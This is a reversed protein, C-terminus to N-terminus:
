IEMNQAEEWKEYLSALKKEWFLKEDFLAATREADSSIGQDLFMSEIESIKKETKEIEKEAKQIANQKKRARATEEKQKLWSDKGTESKLLQGDEKQVTEINRKDSKKELYYDYNGLYKELGFPTMEFITTATRNIFYRDHSIYLVTGEYSRLANELIEKSQMDLHNTPEDLVLLSAKSLMIKALSLRGREGGSLTSIEKFVDDGTFVFAALANRIEGSTMEPYSDSIESFITKGSNLIEQSQDYYGINVNTGLRYIGSDSKLEGLLIKILTTKGIGNPGIVAAREGRKIDLSVNEFLKKGDFSKSLNEAFLVDNGSPSKPSLSIHM